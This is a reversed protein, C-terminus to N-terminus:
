SLFAVCEGTIATNVDQWTSFSDIRGNRINFARGLMKFMYQDKETETVHNAYADEKRIDQALQVLDDSVKNLAIQLDKGYVERGDHTKFM